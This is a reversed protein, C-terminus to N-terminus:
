ALRFSLVRDKLEDESEFTKVGYYYMGDYVCKETLPSYLFSSFKNEKEHHIRYDNIAKQLINALFLLTSDDCTNKEKPHYPAVVLLNEPHEKGVDMRDDILVVTDLDRNIMRLDKTQIDEDFWTENRSLVYDFHVSGFSKVVRKAHSETGATWVIFEVDKNKRLAILIREANPRLVLKVTPDDPDEDDVGDASVLTQDLDWVLTLKHDPSRKPLRRPDKVWCDLRDIKKSDDSSLGRMIEHQKTFYLPFYEEM